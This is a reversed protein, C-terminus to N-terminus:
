RSCITDGMRQERNLDKVLKRGGLRLGNLVSKQSGVWPTKEPDKEKRGGVRREGKNKNM